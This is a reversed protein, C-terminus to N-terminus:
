NTTPQRRAPVTFSDQIKGYRDYLTMQIRQPNVDMLMGGVTHKGESWRNAILDANAKIPKLARGRADDSSSNVVYVTGKGPGVPKRDYIPYTRLYAHNHGSIALDVNLRDFVKRWRDLQGNTGDTGILWQHHEVVVIYQAPNEKIVKEMWEVAPQFTGAKLMGENNLMIFLVDGYRFWYSNGQQNAYGDRPFYHSNRFYSDTKDNDKDMSDHNGEVPAWMYNMFGPQESLETWFNLSGGWACEDGTSVVWDVGEGVSDLVDLMAMASKLRRPEPSYHHFDGIVAAKWERAGATHFRRTESHEMKGTEPDYTLIRYSYDTDPKLNSLRYGHKVFKHHETVDKNDALKSRINDFDRCVSDDTLISGKPADSAKMEVVEPEDNPFKSDANEYDFVYTHADTTEILEIRCLKGPPTIWSIDMSRSCDPAPNTFITNAGDPSGNASLLSSAHPTENEFVHNVLATSSSSSPPNVAEKNRSAIAGFGATIAVCVAAGILIKFQTKM